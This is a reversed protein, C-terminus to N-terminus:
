PDEPTEPEPEPVFTDWTPLPDPDTDTPRKKLELTQDPESQGDKFVHCIDGRQVYNV